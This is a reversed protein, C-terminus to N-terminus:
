GSLRNGKLGCQMDFGSPLDINKLILGRDDMIDKVV